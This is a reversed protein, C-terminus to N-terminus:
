SSIASAYPSWLKVTQNAQDWDDWRLIRAVRAQTLAYEETLGAKEYARVVSPWMYPVTSKTLGMSGFGDLADELIADAKKPGIGPCGPYGDVADGTLTQRIHFYDGSAEAINIVQDGVLHRGPIQKLDKDGSFVIANNGPKTALIGIVDDAELMPKSVTKYGDIVWQRFSAFGMPKRTKKRNAKYEPYIDKRFNGKDSICLRYDCNPVKMLVTTLASVFADKADGHDCTMVWYDESFEVEKEASSIAKYILIDADILLLDTTM